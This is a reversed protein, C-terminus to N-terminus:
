GVRERFLLQALIQEVEGGDLVDGAAGVGDREAADLEEILLRQPALPGHEVHGAGLALLFEGNDQAALLHPPNQIAHPYRHVPHAQRRDVGAPEAEHFSGPELDGIDVTLALQKVNVALPPLVAVNRKRLRREFQQASVPARVAIREPEEVMVLRM